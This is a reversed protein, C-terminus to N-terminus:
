KERVFGEAEILRKDIEKLGREWFSPEKIDIGTGLFIDRASASKGASLFTIVRDIYATDAYVGAQLAKSILLGTAYSYVYFFNRIHSWYLWWHASEPPHEVADGMYVKMHKQFLAGIADKSLYGIRRFERHLDQEFRYCAAQRFITSIDDNLREMLVARRTEEDADRLIEELVFDEMFTSAVEATSLMTGNYLEHQTRQIYVDNIAHGMEHALTTVDRLTGTFNLMVYVPLNKRVCVCFAGGRKGVRPYVDVNGEAVLSAFLSGFEPHLRTFVRKVLDCAEEFSYKKQLATYPPVNREHYALREVGMLRAKLKYFRQPIDFRNEIAQLAADVVETDIDDSVHRVLDPRSVHRLDDDIRKNLLIANLEAEGVEIYKQLIANLAHAASDRTPKRMSSLLTMIDEFTKTKQVGDEDEVDREEKSLFASVMSEWRDHAVPAKLAMIKEEAEGLLFRAEAFLRELFHRYPTLDKHALFKDQLASSILAIRHTFFQMDNAIKTSFEEIKNWHAKLIPNSEEQQSRLWFYYGAAGSTGAERAWAEYESLAEALMVPDSIYDNRDKWKNIFVYSLREVERKEEEIRPDNDGSFLPSLNWTPENQSTDQTSM